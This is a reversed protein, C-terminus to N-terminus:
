STIRDIIIIVLIVIGAGAIVGAIFGIAVTTKEILKKFFNM